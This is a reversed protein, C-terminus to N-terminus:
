YIHGQSPRLLLSQRYRRRHINSRVLLCLFHCYAAGLSVASKDDPYPRDNREFLFAWLDRNPVDLKPYLSETPM